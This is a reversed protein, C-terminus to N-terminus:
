TCNQILKYRIDQRFVVRLRHIEPSEVRMFLGRHTVIVINEPVQAHSTLYVIM